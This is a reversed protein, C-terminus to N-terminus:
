ECTFVPTSGGTCLPDLDYQASRLESDICWFKGSNLEVEACYKDLSFSKIIEVGPIGTSPRTGGQDVIDDCLVKVAGSTCFMAKYNNYQSFIIEAQARIQHMDGMIRTDRAGERVGGLAVLVIGALIGIIAIVVLLEILTFGTLPKITKRKEEAKTVELPTFGKETKFSRELM